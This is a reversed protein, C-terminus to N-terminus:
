FEFWDLQQTISPGGSPYTGQLNQVTATFITYGPFDTFEFAAAYCSTGDCYVKASSEISKEANAETVVVGPAVRPGISDDPACGLLVVAAIIGPVRPFLRM